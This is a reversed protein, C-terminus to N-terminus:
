SNLELQKITPSVINSELIWPDGHKDFSIAGPLELNDAAVTCAGSGLDCRQVTGGGPNGLFVALWGNSDYEVAYLYGDPGFAMDIVSTLGDFAVTCDASPCTVNTAGPAIRWIRSWGPVAPAGTLEGVYTAGDPGVAVSTPVPQVYCDITDSLPFLVRWDGDSDEPPTFVAVLELGNSKHAKYLTNGAADAVLATSGSARAVHYPNSQPGATFGQGPDEECLQNKWQPGEFADPDNATEYAEIDGILKSGDNTVFWVKAGAAKDAGGTTAFFSGSGNAAVGNLTTGSPTVPTPVMAVEEVGHKTVTKVTPHQAVVFGGNPLTDFDFVPASFSLHEDAGVSIPAMAMAMVSVVALALRGKRTQRM